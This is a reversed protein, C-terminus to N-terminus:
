QYSEQRKSKRSPFFEFYFITALEYEAIIVGYSFIDITKHNGIKHFDAMGLTWKPEPIVFQHIM